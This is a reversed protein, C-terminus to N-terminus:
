VLEDVVREVVWRVAGAEREEVGVHGFGVDQEAVFEGRELARVGGREFDNMREVVGWERAPGARRAVDTALKYLCM